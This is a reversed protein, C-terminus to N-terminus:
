VTNMARNHPIIHKHEHSQRRTHSKTYKKRQHSRTHSKTMSVIITERSNNKMKKRTKNNEIRRRKMCIPMNTKVSTNCEKLKHPKVTSFPNKNGRAKIMTLIERPLEGRAINNIKRTSQRRNKQQSEIYKARIPEIRILKKYEILTLFVLNQQTEDEINNWTNLDDEQLFIRKDEDSLKNFRHWIDIKNDTIPESIVKAIERLRSNKITDLQIFIENLETLEKPSINPTM